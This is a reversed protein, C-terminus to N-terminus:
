GERKAEELVFRSLIDNGFQGLWRSKVGLRHLATALIIPVARCSIWGM